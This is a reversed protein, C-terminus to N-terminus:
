RVSAPRKRSHNRNGSFAIALQVSDEHPCETESESGRHSGLQSCTVNSPTEESDVREAAVVAAVAAAETAAAAADAAEAVGVVAAGSM